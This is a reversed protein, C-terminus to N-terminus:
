ITGTHNIQMWSEIRREELFKVLEEAYQFGCLTALTDAMGLSVWGEDARYLLGDRTTVDGLHLQHKVTKHIRPCYYISCVMGNSENMANCNELEGYFSCDKIVPPMNNIKM